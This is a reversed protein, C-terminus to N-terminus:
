NSKKDTSAAVGNPSSAHHPKEIHYGMAIIAKIVQQVVVRDYDREMESLDEYLVLCPHEKRDDNRSPGYTWGDAIRQNAWVDHTNRALKELLEVMDSDLEVHSTDIPAPKYEV